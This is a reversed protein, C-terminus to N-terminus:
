TTIFCLRSTKCSNHLIKFRCFSSFRYVTDCSKCWKEKPKIMANNKRHRPRSEKVNLFLTLPSLQTLKKMETNLRMRASSNRTYVGACKTPLHTNKQSQAIPKSLSHSHHRPLIAFLSAAPRALTITKQTNKVTKILVM